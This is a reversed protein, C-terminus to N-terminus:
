VVRVALHHQVAQHVQDVLEAREVALDDQEIEFILVRGGDGLDGSERGGVDGGLDAPDLVDESAAEM